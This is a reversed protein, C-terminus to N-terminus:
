PATCRVKGRYEGLAILLVLTGDITVAIGKSGDPAANTVGISRAFEPAMDTALTAGSADKATYTWDAANDRDGASGTADYLYVISYDTEGATGTPKAPWIDALQKLATNLQQRLRQVEGRLNEFDGHTM